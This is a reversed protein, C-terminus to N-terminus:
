AARRKKLREFLDVSRWGHLNLGGADLLDQDPHGKFDGKEMIPTAKFLRPWTEKMLERVQDKNINGRGLARKKWTQNNVLVVISGAQMCAAMIAGSVFAQPITAGPGGVGMVPAELFVRPPQGDRERIVMLTDFMFDFAEECKKEIDEFDFHKVHLTPKDRKPDSSEVAAIKQSSPDVGLVTKVKM